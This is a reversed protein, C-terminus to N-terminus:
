VRVPVSYEGSRLDWGIEEVASRNLSVQHATTVGLGLLLISFAGGLGNARTRDHRMTLNLISRM